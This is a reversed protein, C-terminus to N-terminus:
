GGHLCLVKGNSCVMPRVVLVRGWKPLGNLRSWALVALERTRFKVWCSGRHRPRCTDWYLKFDNHSIGVDVLLSAVESKKVQFEIQGLFLSRSAASAPFSSFLLDTM